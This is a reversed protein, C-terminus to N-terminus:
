EFYTLLLFFELMFKNKNAFLYSDHSLEQWSFEFLVLIIRKKPAFRGM